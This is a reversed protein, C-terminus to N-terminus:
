EIYMRLKEMFALKALADEIRGTYYMPENECIELFRKMVPYDKSNKNPLRIGGIQLIFRYELEYALVVTLPTFKGPELSKLVETRNKIEEVNGICMGLFCQDHFKCTECVLQKIQQDVLEEDTPVHYDKVKEIDEPNRLDFDIMKGNKLKMYRCIEASFSYCEGPVCGSFSSLDMWVHDEKGIFGIGDDYLGSVLIRQFVVKGRDTDIHEVQGIFDYEYPHYYCMEFYKRTKGCSKMQVDLYEDYSKFNGNKVEEASSPNFNIYGGDFLQVCDEGYFEKKFKKWKSM